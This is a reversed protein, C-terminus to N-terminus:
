DQGNEQSIKSVLLAIFNNIHFKSAISEAVYSKQVSNLKDWRVSLESFIDTASRNDTMEDIVDIGISKLARQAEETRLRTFITKLSHGIELGSKKTMSAIAAIMGNLEDFTVNETKASLGSNACAVALTESTVAYNNSIQNWSEVISVSEDVAKGFQLITSTIYNASDKEKMEGVTSLLMAAKGLKEVDIDSIRIGRNSFEDYVITNVKMNDNKV